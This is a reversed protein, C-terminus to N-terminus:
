PADEVPPTYMGTDDEAANKEELEQEKLKEAKDQPTEEPEVRDADDDSYVSGDDSDLYEEEWADVRSFDFYKRDDINYVAKILTVLTDGDYVEWVVPIDTRGTYLTSMFKFRPQKSLVWPLCYNRQDSEDRCLKKMNMEYSMNRTEDALFRDFKGYENIMAVQLDIIKQGDEEIVSLDEEMAETGASLATNYGDITARMSNIEKNYYNLDKNYTKYTYHSNFYYGVGFCIVLLLVYPIIYKLKAKM